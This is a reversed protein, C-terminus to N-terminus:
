AVGGRAHELLGKLDTDTFGFGLQKSEIELAAWKVRDLGDLSPNVALLESLFREAKRLTSFTRLPLLSRVCASQKEFLRLTFGKQRSQGSPHESTVFMVYEGREVPSGHFRTNFFSTAGASFWQYGAAENARRMQEITM